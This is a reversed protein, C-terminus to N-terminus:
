LLPLLKDVLARGVSVGLDLKALDTSRAVNRVYAMNFEKPKVEAPPCSVTSLREAPDMMESVAAAKELSSSSTHYLISSSDSFLSLSSERKVQPEAM